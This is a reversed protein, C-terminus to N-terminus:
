VVYKNMMWRMSLLATKHMWLVWNFRQSLSIWSFVMGKCKGLGDKGPWCFAGTQPDFVWVGDM